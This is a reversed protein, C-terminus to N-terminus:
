EKEARGDWIFVNSLMGDREEKALAVEKKKEKEREIIPKMRKAADLRRKPPRDCLVTAQKCGKDLTGKKWRGTNNFADM